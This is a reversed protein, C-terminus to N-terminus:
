KRLRPDLADRLGDGLMNFSLMAISIAAAPFLLLHPYATIRTQGTAALTGWSALPQPVGMGIFSLFAEFFIAGPISFTLRVIIQGIVNPVLHKGILRSPSAGLTKAALVFEQEKVQLIQGRVIRAMPLWHISSIAIIVTLLGPGMVMILLIMMVVEPIVYLVDVIRMMINDVMGGKFGSIGGYIVGIVLEIFAGTLGILLSIRAGVWVRVFLDRGLEDTGFWHGQVMPKANTLMLNQESFSYKSFIPVFIAMLSLIILIILATIAAPNKKLRRWADQWYTLSPRVIAQAVSLDKGVVKFQEKQLEMEM